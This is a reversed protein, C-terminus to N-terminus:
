VTITNEPNEVRQESAISAAQVKSHPADKQPSHAKPTAAIPGLKELADAQEKVMERLEINERKLEPDLRVRAEAIDKNIEAVSLDTAENKAWHEYMSVYSGLFMGPIGGAWGIGFHELDTRDRVFKPLKLHTKNLAKGAGRAIGWGIATGALMIGTARAEKWLYAGLSLKEAIKENRERLEDVREYAM